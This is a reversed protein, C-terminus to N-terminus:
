VPNVEQALKENWVVQCSKKTDDNVEVVEVEDNVFKDIAELNYHKSMVIDNDDDKNDSKNTGAVKCQESENPVPVGSNQMMAVMMKGLETAYNENAPKKWAVNKNSSFNNKSNNYNTNTHGKAVGNTEWTARMKKAQAIIVKCENTDHTDTQHLVCWKGSSESERSKRKGKQNRSQVKGTTAASPENQSKTESNNGMTEVHEIQECFSTFDAPSHILPDFNHYTM